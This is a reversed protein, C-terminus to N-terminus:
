DHRERDEPKVNPPADCDGADGPNGTRFRELREVRALFNASEPGALLAAHVVNARGLALDLQAGTFTTVVAIQGGTDSAASRRHLAADIKRTGDPAADRAHVVARIHDQRLAAEVKTFGTVVRGAKGVIALADLVARELLMETTAILDGPPRLERRFARAFANKKVAATLAARTGTVWAGRGPLRGKLDPLVAADPGVVFRILDARPKVARTAICFREAEATGKRPGGDLDDDHVRALM